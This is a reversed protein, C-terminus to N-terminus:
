GNKRLTRRLYAWISQLNIPQSHELSWKGLTNLYQYGGDDLSNFPQRYDNTQAQGEANM